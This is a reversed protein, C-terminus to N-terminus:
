KGILESVTVFNYGRQQLVEIIEGLANVTPNTPHMLLIGGDDIKNIARQVIIEPAPRQWDITDASWMITSYGISSAVRSIREDVEGYPPAFLKTKKGTIEYILEENRKILEVLSNNTLQTPHLHSYGHNGIEHGKQAIIKLMESNKKVWNGTVFFTAKIGKVDLVKLMGPIFESGWDVNITISIQDKGRVGHYYPRNPSTVIPVTLENQVMGTVIGIFFCIVIMYKKAVKNVMGTVMVLRAGQTHNM